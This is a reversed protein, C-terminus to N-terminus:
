DTSANSRSMCRGGRVGLMQVVRAHRCCVLVPRMDPYGNETGEDPETLPCDTVQLIRSISVSAMYPRQPSHNDGPECLPLRVVDRFVPAYGVDGVNSGVYEFRQEHRSAHDRRNREEERQDYLSPQPM